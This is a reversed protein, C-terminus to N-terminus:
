IRTVTIPVSCFSLAAPDFPEFQSRMRLVAHEPVDLVSGYDATHEVVEIAYGCAIAMVFYPQMHELRINTNHVVVHDVGQLLLTNVREQCWAHADSLKSPDFRYVGDVEFFDDAAVRYEPNPQIRMAHTTKGSGPAGREITLKPMFAEKPSTAAM